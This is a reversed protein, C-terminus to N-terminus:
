DVCARRNSEDGPTRQRVWERKIEVRRRASIRDPSARADFDLALPHSLASRTVFRITARANIPRARDAPIDFTLQYRVNEIEKARATALSLSVGPEVADAKNAIPGGGCAPM